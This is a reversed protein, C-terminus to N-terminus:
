VGVTERRPSWSYVRLPPVNLPVFDVQPTGFLPRATEEIDGKMQYAIFEGNESMADRIAATIRSAVDRPISSFPIGSVVVDVSELQHQRLLDTLDVADGHLVTLRDDHIMRLPEILQETKEIALLTANPPLTKLLAITTGGAGPGLEVVVSAQTLCARSTITKILQRSSPMVTAVQSPQRCWARLILWWRQMFSPMGLKEKSKSRGIM